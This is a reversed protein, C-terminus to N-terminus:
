VKLSKRSVKKKSTKARKSKAKKSTKSTKQGAIVIQKIQDLTYDRGEVSVITRDTPMSQAQEQKQKKADQAAWYAKKDVTSLEKGDVVLAKWLRSDGKPAPPPSVAVPSSNKMHFLPRYYSGDQKERDMIISGGGHAAAHCRTNFSRMYDDLNDDPM